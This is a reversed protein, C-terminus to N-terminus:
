IVKFICIKLLMHHRLCQQRQQEFSSSSILLLPRLLLPSLVVEVRKDELLPWETWLWLTREELTGCTCILAADIAACLNQSYRTKTNLRVFWINRWPQSLIMM